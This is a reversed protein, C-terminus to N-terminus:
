RNGLIYLFNRDLIFKLKKETYKLIQNIEKLRIDGTAQDVNTYFLM